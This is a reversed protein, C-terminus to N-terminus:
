WVLGFAGMGVPQLDVYSVLTSDCETELTIPPMRTYRSLISVWRTTVEFVTGFISLKVFEAMNHTSPHSACLSGVNRQQTGPGSGNCWLQTLMKTCVRSVRLSALPFISGVSKSKSQWEWNGGDPHVHLTSSNYSHSSFNSRYCKNDFSKISTEVYLSFIFAVQQTAKVRKPFAQKWETGNWQCSSLSSMRQLLDRANM